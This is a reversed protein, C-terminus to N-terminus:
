RWTSAGHDRRRAGDHHCLGDRHGRHLLGHFEEQPERRLAHAAAQAGERELM